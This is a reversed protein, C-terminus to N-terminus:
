LTVSVDARITVHQRTTCLLSMRFEFCVDCIHLRAQSQELLSAVPGIQDVPYPARDRRPLPRAGRCSSMTLRSHAAFASPHPQEAQAARSSERCRSTRASGNPEPAPVVHAGGRSAAIEAMICPAPGEARNSCTVSALRSACHRLGDSGEPTCLLASLAYSRTKACRLRARRTASRAIKEIPRKPRNWHSCEM